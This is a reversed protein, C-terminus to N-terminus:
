RRGDPRVDIRPVGLQWRTGVKNSEIRLRVSRGRLRVHVQETFQEVPIVASRATPVVATGGLASGPLNQAILTMVAEPNNESNYFTLDPVVRRIFMFQNGEQLDIPASEIYSNI